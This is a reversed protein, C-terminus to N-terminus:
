RDFSDREHEVVHEGDGVVLDRGEHLARGLGGALERAAGASADASVGDRRITHERRLALDDLREDGGCSGTISRSM